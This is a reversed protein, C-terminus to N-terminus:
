WGASASFIKDPLIEDKVHETDALVEHPIFFTPAPAMGGYPIGLLAKAAHRTWIADQMAYHIQEETLTQGQRFSTRVAGKELEVNFLEKVLNKLSYRDSYAPWRLAFMVRTDLIEYKSLKKIFVQKLSPYAKSLVSIDFTANHFAIYDSDEIYQKIKLDAIPDDYLIYENCPGVTHVASVTTIVLPPGVPATRVKGSPPILHTETDIATISFKM